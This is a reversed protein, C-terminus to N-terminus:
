PELLPVPDSDNTLPLPIYKLALPMEWSTVGTETNVFYYMGYTSDFRRQWVSKLLAKLHKRLM